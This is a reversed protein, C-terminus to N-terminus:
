RVRRIPIVAFAALLVLVFAVPWVPGYSGGFMTVVIGAIIPGIAQGLNTGLASLGLDRGASERDPLVDIFLAQDVVLFTGFGVGMVIAQLFLAPLSAWVFPILFSTAMIAAAAVVFPKRRGVKDSWRGSIAMAVLTGPIGAFTILPATGAAQELSLAPNIYSQLMYISYVASIGVGVYLLVKSIWAWRYDRDRLAFVYAGFFNKATLRETKINKSSKDPAFLVFALSSLLLIVGIPYYTALGLTGFLMGVVVSGGVGALYGVVGTISSVFGLRSEPVRDAVSATLPGSIANAAVQLLTWVVALLALTPVSPMFVVLATGAVAGGAVFPARRGLRSQTRDSLMGIIPQILMTIFVAISTVFSLGSARSANFQSLLSLQESQASTPTVAGSAVKAALANLAQLDVGANAGTFIHAFELQQVQIPLLISAVSSFLLGFGVTGISYFVIYRRLAKTKPEYKV